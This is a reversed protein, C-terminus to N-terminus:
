IQVVCSFYKELVKANYLQSSIKKKRSTLAAKYRTTSSFFFASSYCFHGECNRVSMRSVASATTSNENMNKEEEYVCYDRM